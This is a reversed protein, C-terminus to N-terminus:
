YERYAKLECRDIEGTGNCANCVVKINGNYISKVFIEGDGDCKSCTSSAM